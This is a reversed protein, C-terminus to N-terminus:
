AIPSTAINQQNISLVLVRPRRGMKYEMVPEM